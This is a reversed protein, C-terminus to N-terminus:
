QPKKQSIQGKIEGCGIKVAGYGFKQEIKDWADSLRRKKKAGEDEFISLQATKDTQTLMYLCAGSSRYIKKDSFIREFASHMQEYLEFESTKPVDFIIKEKVSKFNKERLWIIMMGAQLKHSRLKKCIKHIHNNLENIIFDKDNTFEKFTSSKSISKPPTYYDIFPYVSAGRLERKLELGRKGLNRQIFDDEQCSYIKANSINHKRFFKHLNKGVGWVEEIPTQSLIKDINEKTIEFVGPYASEIHKRTQNKAIESAIKSLTKTPSIGISVEIGTEERIEKRIKEGIEEFTMKYLRRTGTMDLFAEDISYIEVSPTYSSLKKMIKDSMTKYKSLDGSIWVVNKYKRKAIFYPVGMLIGLDKAENSRAVVCADNNSLVCVAKGKLDPNLVQECSVFFNNCDVLFITKDM